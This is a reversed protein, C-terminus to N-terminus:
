YWAKIEWRKSPRTKYDTFHKRTQRSWRSQNHVVITEAKQFRGRAQFFTQRKNKLKEKSRKPQTHAKKILLRVCEGGLPPLVFLFVWNDEEEGFRFTPHKRQLSIALHSWSASWSLFLPPLPHSPLRFQSLIFPHQFAKSKKKRERIQIYTHKYAEPPSYCRETLWGIWLLFVFPSCLLFFTVLLEMRYLVCM